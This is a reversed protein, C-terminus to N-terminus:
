SGLFVVLLTVLACGKVVENGLLGGESLDMRCLLLLPDGVVSWCFDSVEVEFM